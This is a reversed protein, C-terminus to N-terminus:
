CRRKQTITLSRPARLESDPVLPGRPPHCCSNNPVIVSFLVPWQCLVSFHCRICDLSLPVPFAGQLLELADEFPCCINVLALLSLFFWASPVAIEWKEVNRLLTTLEICYVGHLWKQTSIWYSPCLTQFWFTWAQVGGESCSLVAVCVWVSWKLGWECFAPVLQRCEENM